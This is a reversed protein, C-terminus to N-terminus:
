LVGKEKLEAAYEDAVGCDGNTAIQVQVAQQLELDLHSRGDRVVLGRAQLSAVLDLVDPGYAQLIEAASLRMLDPLAVTGGGPVPLNSV